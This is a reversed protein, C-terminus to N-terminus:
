FLESLLVIYNFTTKMTTPATLHITFSFQPQLTIYQVVVPGPNSTLTVLVASHATISPNMVIVDGQGSEIVGSGSLAGRAAGSIRGKMAEIASGYVSSAYRSDQVPSRDRKEKDEAAVDPTHPTQPASVVNGPMERAANAEDVSLGIGVVPLRASTARVTYGNREVPAEQRHLPMPAVISEIQPKEAIAVPLSATELHIKTTRGALRQRQGGTQTRAVSGTLTPFPCVVGRQSVAEEGSTEYPSAPTELFAGARGAEPLPSMGAKEERAARKVAETSETNEACSTNLRRVFSALVAARDSPAVMKLLTVEAARRAVHPDHITPWDDDGVDEIPLVVNDVSVARMPRSQLSLRPPFVVKGQTSYRKDTQEGAEESWLTGELPAAVLTEEVSVSLDLRERAFRSLLKRRIRESYEENLVVVVEVYFM